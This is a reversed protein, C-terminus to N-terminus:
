GPSLSLVNSNPAVVGAAARESSCFMFVATTHHFGAVASLIFCPQHFSSANKSVTRRRCHSSSIALAPHPNGPAVLPLWFSSGGSYPLWGATTGSIFVCADVFIKYLLIYIYINIRSPFPNQQCWSSISGYKKYFVSKPLRGSIAASRNKIWGEYSGIM